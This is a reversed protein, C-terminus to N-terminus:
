QPNTPTAELWSTYAGDNRSRAGQGSCLDLRKSVRETLEPGHIAACM